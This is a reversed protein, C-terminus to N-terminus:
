NNHRQAVWVANSNGVECIASPTYGLSLSGEEKMSSPNVKILKGNANGTLLWVGGDSAVALNNIAEGLQLAGSQKRTNRDFKVLKNGANDVLFINAGNPDALLKEPAFVASNTCSSTVILMCGSLLTFTYKMTHKM